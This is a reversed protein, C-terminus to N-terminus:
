DVYGTWSEIKRQVRKGRWGREDEDDTPKADLKEAKERNDRDDDKEGDSLVQDRQRKALQM